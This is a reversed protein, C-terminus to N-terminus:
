RVVRIYHDTFISNRQIIQRPMHCSICNGRPQVPCVRGAARAAAGEHCRACVQNYSAADHTADGHPDHCSVCSFRGRSERFCRSRRLGIPAFRVVVPDDPKLGVGATNRHCTACFDVLAAASGRGPVAISGAPRGLKAAAVHRAGAGHCRECRVGERTGDLVLGQASQRAGTTHCDFCAFAESATMADGTPQQRRLASSRGLTGATFDWGANRYFSLPSEVYGGPSRGVPTVGSDGAGFAWHTPQWHTTESDHAEIGFNGGREAMRYSLDLDPDRLWDSSPLPTAARYETITRLALAHHTRAQAALNAHCPFCSEDGAFGPALVAQSAPAPHPVLRLLYIAYLGAAALIAALGRAGRNNLRRLM